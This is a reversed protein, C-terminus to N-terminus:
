FGALNTTWHAMRGLHQRPNFCDESFSQCQWLTIPPCQYFRTTLSIEAEHRFHTRQEFRAGLFLQKSSSTKPLRLNLRMSVLLFRAYTCVFNVPENPATTHAGHVHCMAHIAIKLLLYRDLQDIKRERGIKEPLSEPELALNKSSEIMREDGPQQVTAHGALSLWEKYHLVDIPNRDM